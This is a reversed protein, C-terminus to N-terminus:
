PYYNIKQLHQLCLKMDAFLLQTLLVQSSKIKDIMINTIKVRLCFITKNNNLSFSKLM